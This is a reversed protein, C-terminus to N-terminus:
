KRGKSKGKGKAKKDAKADKGKKGKAPKEEAPEDTDNNPDDEPGETSDDDAGDEAPADQEGILTRQAHEVVINSITAGKIETVLAGTLAADLEERLKKYAAESGATVNATVVLAGSVQNAM